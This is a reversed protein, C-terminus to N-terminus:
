AGHLEGRALRFVYAVERAGHGVAGEVQLRGRAGGVGGDDFRDRGHATEPAPRRVPKKRSAPAPTVHARGAIEGYALRELMEVRAAARQGFVGDAPPRTRPAVVLIEGDM